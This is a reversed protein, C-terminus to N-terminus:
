DSPITAWYPFARTREVGGADKWRGLVGTTPISVREGLLVHGGTPTPGIWSWSKDANAGYEGWYLRPHANFIMLGSMLMVTLLVVNAWHWLRTSLRHRFVFRRPRAVAATAVQEALRTAM